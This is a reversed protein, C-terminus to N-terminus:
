MSLHNFIIPHCPTPMPRIWPQDPCPTWLLILMLIHGRDKHLAFVDAKGQM